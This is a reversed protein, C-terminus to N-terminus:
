WWEPFRSASYNQDLLIWNPPFYEDSRYKRCWLEGKGPEACGQGDQNVISRPAVVVAADGALYAGWWSFTSSGSVVVADSQQLISLDVFPEECIIGMKCTDSTPHPAIHLGPIYPLLHEEAWDHTDTVLVFSVKGPGGFLDQLLTAARVLYEASHGFVDFMHFECLKDGLRWHMGVIKVRQTGGSDVGAAHAHQKLHLQRVEDLYKTARTVAGEPFRFVKRLQETSINDFYKFSFPLRLVKSPGSREILSPDYRAWSVAADEEGEVIWGDEGRRGDVTLGFAAAFAQIRKSNAEWNQSGRTPMLIVPRLGRRDSIGLLAAYVFMLNGLLGHWQASLWGAPESVTPATAGVAVTGQRAHPDCAQSQGMVPESVCLDSIVDFNAAAAKRIRWEKLRDSADQGSGEASTGSAAAAAAACWVALLLVLKGERLTM